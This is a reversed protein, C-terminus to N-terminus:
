DRVGSRYSSNIWSIATMPLTMPRQGFVGIEVAESFSIEDCSDAELVEPETAFVKQSLAILHAEFLEIQCTNCFFYMPFM